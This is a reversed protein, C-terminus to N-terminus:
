MKETVTKLRHNASSLFFRLFRCFPILLLLSVRLLNVNGMCRCQFDFLVLICQNTLYRKVYKEGDQINRKATEEM